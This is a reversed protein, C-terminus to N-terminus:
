AQFKEAKGWGGGTFFFFLEQPEPFVGSCHSLYDLPCSLIVLQCFLGERAKLSCLSLKPDQGSHRSKQLHCKQKASLSAKRTAFIQHLQLVRNQMLTLLSSAPLERGTQLSNRSGEKLHALSPFPVNPLLPNPHTHERGAKEEWKRFSSSRLPSRVDPSLCPCPFFDTDKGGVWKAEDIAGSGHKAHRSLTMQIQIVSHCKNHRQLM